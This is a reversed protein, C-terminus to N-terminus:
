NGSTAVMGIFALAGIVHLALIRFLTSLRPRQAIVVGYVGYLAAMAVMLGPGPRHEPSPSWSFFAIISVPGAAGTIVLIPFDGIAVPALGLGIAAGTVVGLLTRLDFKFWPRPKAYARTDYGRELSAEWRRDLEEITLVRGAEADAIGERIAALDEQQRLEDPVANVATLKDDAM